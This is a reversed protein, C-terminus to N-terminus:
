GLESKKGFNAHFTHLTQHQSFHDLYNSQRPFEQKVMHVHLINMERTSCFLLLVWLFCCCFIVM